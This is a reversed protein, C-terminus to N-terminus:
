SDPNSKVNQKKWPRNKWAEKLEYRARNLILQERLDHLGLMKYNAWLHEPVLNWAYIFNAFENKIFKELWDKAAYLKEPDTEKFEKVNLKFHKLLPEKIYNVWYNTRGLLSNEESM